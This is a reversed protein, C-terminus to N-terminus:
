TSVGLMVNFQTMIVFRGIVRLRVKVTVTVMVMIVVRVYVIIVAMLMVYTVAAFVSGFGDCSHGFVAVTFIDM